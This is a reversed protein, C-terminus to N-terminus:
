HQPARPDGCFFVFLARRFPQCLLVPSSAALCVLEFFPTLTLSPSGARAQRGWSWAGRAFATRWWWRRRRALAAAPYSSRVQRSSCGDTWCRGCGRTPCGPRPLPQQTPATPTCSPATRRWVSRARGHEVTTQLRARRSVRRGGHALRRDPPHPVGRPGRVRATGRECLVAHRGSRALIAGRSHPTLAAGFNSASTGLGPRCAQLPLSQSWGAMCLALLTLCRNGRRNCPTLAWSSCSLARRHPSGWRARVLACRPRTSSTSGTGPMPRSGPTRRKTMWISEARLTAGPTSRKSTKPRANSGCARTGRTSRGGIRGVDWM